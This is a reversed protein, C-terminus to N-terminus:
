AIRVSLEVPTWSSNSDMNQKEIELPYFTAEDIGVHDAGTKIKDAPYVVTAHINSM